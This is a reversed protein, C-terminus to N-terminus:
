ALFEYCVRLFNQPLEPRLRQIGVKCGFPQMGGQVTFM